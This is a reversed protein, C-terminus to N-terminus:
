VRAITSADELAQTSPMMANPCYHSAPDELPSHILAARVPPTSIRPSAKRISATLNAWNRGGDRPHECARGGNQSELLEEGSM